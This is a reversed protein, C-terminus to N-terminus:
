GEFVVQAYAVQGPMPPHMKRIAVRVKEAEPFQRQLSSHIDAIFQELLDHPQEFAAAVTSRLITYDVYPIQTVSTAPVFVDVDVEFKNSIKHEEAYLGRTAAITIGHLSVTLM